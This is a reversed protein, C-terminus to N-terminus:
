IQSRIAKLIEYAVQPVIANGLGKLRDVRSPIGHAVRGVAPEPLWQCHKASGGPWATRESAGEREPNLKGHGQPRPENTDAVNEAGGCGGAPGKWEGQYEGTEPAPTGNWGRSKSNAVIWVRERRHKADTACAPIVVPVAPYGIAELDALVRDLAMTVIGTVNEGCVWSPKAEKIVRLMEPWLYRDDEKGRQKGAVSFPQCPFGGTLLDIGGLSDGKISKIDGHNPVDPWHKALVRGAYNDIESFGITRFGAWQAALAFGGIGSFLDLHTPQEHPQMLTEGAADDM